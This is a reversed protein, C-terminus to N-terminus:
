FYLYRGVLLPFAGGVGLKAAVVPRKPAALNFVIVDTGFLYLYGKIMLLTEPADSASSADVIQSQGVPIPTQPNSIDIVLLKSLQSPPNTPGVTVALYAYTGAVAVARIQGGNQGVLEVARAAIPPTSALTTSLPAPALPQAQSRQLSPTNFLLLCVVVFLRAVRPM